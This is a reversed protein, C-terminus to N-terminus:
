FLVTGIRESLPKLLKDLKQTRKLLKIVEEEAPEAGQQERIMILLEQELQKYRHYHYYDLAATVCRDLYQDAAPTDVDIQKWRESLTHKQTVLQTILSQAESGLEDIMAPVTNEQRQPYYLFFHQRIRELLPHQFHLEGLMESLLEFVTTPADEYQIGQEPYNLLLRLLEREQMEYHGTLPAQAPQLGSAAAKQESRHAARLQQQHDQRYLQAMKGLLLDAELQLQRAAEQTYLHRQIEDPIKAILTLLAEAVQAKQGLDRPDKLNHALFFSVVDQTHQEAYRRFAAAGEQLLYTDPDHGEPLLLARASLGASLILEMARLTAQQGAADSDYVVLITKTYRALLQVQEAVLSTGCSAVATNLGAQHMSLVDTYGEVLIAQQETRIANRAQYLGYLLKSKNYVASDPSNLYKATKKDSGLIRGGFGAVTGNPELIPFMVRDHFRDLLKGTKDSRLSLGTDLLFKEQYQAKLAAQTFPDWGSPCYGLQFEQIISEGFGRELFYSRALTRGEESHILQQHFWGAAFHNLARMSARADPDEAQMQETELPINYKRALHQLAEGYTYGEMEMLFGVLTGGKGSAFDKFIGKQPHVSFSPTREAKFPSLGWWNTGRKKLQVYDGIVELIDATQYIQDKIHEPVRM